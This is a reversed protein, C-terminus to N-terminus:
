KVRKNNEDYVPYNPTVQKPDKYATERSSVGMEAGITCPFIEPQFQVTMPM